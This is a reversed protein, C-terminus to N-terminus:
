SADGTARSHVGSSSVARQAQCAPGLVKDLARCLGAVDEDSLDGITSIQFHSQDGPVGYLVFYGEAQLKATLENYLIGAPLAFNVAIWSLRERPLLPGLGMKALHDAIQDMQRQIRAMHADIGVERLLACAAHLAAFLAVPQAFRPQNDVGQREVEAVVDLYYSSHGGKGRVAKLAPLAARRALVIGLGPAAMVAKASSTVALDLQAAELDVPYAFASSIIDAGVLLGRAHCAQGIENLPNVLGMRTEHSVFYCWRLEPHSDLFAEVAAVSFPQEVPGELVLHKIGNQVAQDVLRAGFFGNQLILGPGLGAFAQMCGENAGTGTCTMLGIAYDAPKSLKLLHALDSKIEGVMAQFGPQRHYNCSPNAMAEAVRQPIRVPGPTFLIPPTM